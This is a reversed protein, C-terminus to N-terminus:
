RHFFLHAILLKQSQKLCLIKNSTIRHLLILIWIKYVLFILSLSTLYNVRSWGAVLCSLWSEAWTWGKLYIKKKNYVIICELYFHIFYYIWSDSFIFVFFTITKLLCTKPPWIAITIRLSKKFFVLWNSFVEVWWFHRLKHMLLFLLLLINCHM